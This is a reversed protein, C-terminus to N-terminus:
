RAGSPEHCHSHEAMGREDTIRRRLAPRVSAFNYHLLSPKPTLGKRAAIPQLRNPHAALELDDPELSIFMEVGQLFVQPRPGVTRAIILLSMLPAHGTRWSNPLEPPSKQNQM